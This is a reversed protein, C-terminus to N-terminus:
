PTKEQLLGTSRPDSRFFASQRPDSLDVRIRIAFADLSRPYISTYMKMRPFDANMAEM